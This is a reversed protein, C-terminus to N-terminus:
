QVEQITDAQKLVHLDTKLVEQLMPDALGKIKAHLNPSYLQEALNVKLYLKIIEENAYFDLNIKLSLVYKIFRDFVIDDIRFGNYFEDRTFSSYRNRDEELHEFIFRSFFGRINIGDSNIMMHRFM